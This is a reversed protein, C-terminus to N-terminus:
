IAGSKEDARHKELWMQPISQSSHWTIHFNDNYDCLKCLALYGELLLKLSVAYNSNLTIFVIRNSLLSLMPELETSGVIENSYLFFKDNDTKKIEQDILYSSSGIIM